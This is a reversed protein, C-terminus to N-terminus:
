YIMIVSKLTTCKDTRMRDLSVDKKKVTIQTTLGVKSFCM